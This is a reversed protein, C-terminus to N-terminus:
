ECTYYWINYANCSENGCCYGHSEAKQIHQLVQDCQDCKTEGM